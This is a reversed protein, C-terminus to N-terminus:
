EVSNIWEYVSLPDWTNYTVSVFKNLMLWKKCEILNDFLGIQGVSPVRVPAVAALWLPGLLLSLSFNSCIGWLELVLAEADSPWVLFVRQPLHPWVSRCLHLQRIRYGLRCSKRWFHNELLFSQRYLCVFVNSHM